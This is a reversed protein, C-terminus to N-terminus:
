GSSVAVDVPLSRDPRDLSYDRQWGSLRSASLWELEVSWGEEFVLLTSEDSVSFREREVVSWDESVLLSTDPPELSYDKGTM